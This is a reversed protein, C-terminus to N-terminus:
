KSLWFVYVLFLANGIFSVVTLSIMITNIIGGTATRPEGKQDVDGGADLSADLSAGAASTASELLDSKVDELIRPSRLETSSAIGRQVQIALLLACLLLLCRRTMIIGGRTNFSKQKRNGTAARLVISPITLSLIGSRRTCSDVQQQGVYPKEHKTIRMWVTTDIHHKVSM